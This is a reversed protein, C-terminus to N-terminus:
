KAGNKEIKSNKEFVSSLISIARKGM